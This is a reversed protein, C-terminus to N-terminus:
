PCMDFEELCEGQQDGQDASVKDVDLQSKGSGFQVRVIRVPKIHRLLGPFYTPGEALFQM